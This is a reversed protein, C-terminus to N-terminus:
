VLDLVKNVHVPLLDISRAGGLFVLDGDARDSLLDEDWHGSLGGIEVRARVM